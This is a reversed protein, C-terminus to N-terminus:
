KKLFFSLFQDRCVQPHAEDVIAGVLLFYPLTSLRPHMILVLIVSFSLFLLWPFLTGFLSFHSSYQILLNRCVLQNSHQWSSFHKTTPVRNIGWLDLYYGLNFVSRSAHCLSITLTMFFHSLWSQSGMEYGAQLTKKPTIWFCVWFHLLTVQSSHYRVIVTVNTGYWLEASTLVQLIVKM